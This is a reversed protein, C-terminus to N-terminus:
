LRFHAHVSAADPQCPRKRTDSSELRSVCLAQRPIIAFLGLVISLALLRVDVTVHTYATDLRTLWVTVRRGHCIDIGTRMWMNACANWWCILGDVSRQARVDLTRMWTGTCTIWTCFCWLLFIRGQLAKTHLRGTDLQLSHLPHLTHLCVPCLSMWWKIERSEFKWRLWMGTCANCSCIFGRVFSGMRLGKHVCM